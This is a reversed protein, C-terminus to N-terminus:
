ESNKDSHAVIATSSTRPVQKWVLLLVLLAVLPALSVAIMPETYSQTTKIHSGIQGQMNGSVMWTTFGFTGSVKGQHRGSLDQSFSYYIPFVALGCFGTLLLLAILGPGAPVISALGGVAVGAACIAYLLTRSAFVSWGRRAMSKALLGVGICGIDAAVFYSFTVYNIATASYGHTTHLFQPLWARWFHWSMNIAIVMAACVIARRWFVDKPLKDAPAATASEVAAPKALDGPRMILFWPVIWLVGVVGIVQFPLRWTGAEETVFLQVIVPTAMSGLATGSQLIGNGLSREARSLLRSTTVLAFPWQAAEFFGLATRCSRLGLFAQENLTTAGLWEGIEVAFSTAWGTASWLLILVPYLFYIRVKDALAGFVLGGIAFAYGFDRELLGYQAEDIGLEPKIRLMTQALTQRDMYNLMTALLLMGCVSWKWSESRSAPEHM